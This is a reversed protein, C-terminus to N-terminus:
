QHMGTVFLKTDPGPGRSLMRLVPLYIGYDSRSTTFVGITKM